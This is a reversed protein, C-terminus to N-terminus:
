IKEGDFNVQDGKDDVYWYTGLSRFYKGLRGDLGGDRETEQSDIGLESLAEKFRFLNIKHCARDGRIWNYDLSERMNDYWDYNCNSEFFRCIHYLPTYSTEIILQGGIQVDRLPTPDWLQPIPGEHIRFNGSIYQPAGELSELSQSTLYVEGNVVKPGGIMNKIKTDNIYVERNIVEPCGKLSTIPCRYIWLGDGITKPAGELSTLFPLRQIDFSGGVFQPGGVLSTTQCNVLQFEGDVTHPFGDLSKFESNMVVFHGHFRGFQFTLKPANILDVADVLMDVSGDENIQVSDSSFRTGHNSKSCFDLVEDVTPIRNFAENFKKLYIM